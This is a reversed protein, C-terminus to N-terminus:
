LMALVSLPDLLVLPEEMVRLALIDIKSSRRRTSSASKIYLVILRIM